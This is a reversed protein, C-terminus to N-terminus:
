SALWRPASSDRPPPKQATTRELGFRYGKGRVSWIVSSRGSPDFKKRVKSVLTDVARSMSVSSRGLLRQAIADRSVIKGDAEILIRALLFESRSLPVHEGNSRVLQRNVIDFRVSPFDISEPQRELPAVRETRRMRLLLERLDIPKVMYDEAGAELSRLRDAIDARASVVIIPRERFAEDRLLVVGDESDNGLGLDLIVISPKVSPELRRAASASWAELVDYGQERLFMGVMKRFSSSDDVILVRKKM